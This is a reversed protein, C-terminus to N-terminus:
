KLTNKYITGDKMIVDFNNEPDSVLDLNKLPNGKVLIM